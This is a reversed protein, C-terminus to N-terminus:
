KNKDIDFLYSLDELIINYDTFEINNAAHALEDVLDMLRIASIPTQRGMLAFDRKTLIKKNIGSFDFVGHWINAYLHITDTYIHSVIEEIVDRMYKKCQETLNGEYTRNNELYYINKNGNPETIIYVVKNSSVGLYVTSTNIM